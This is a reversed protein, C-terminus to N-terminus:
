RFELLMQCVTDIDEQLCIPGSPLWFSEESVKQSISFQSPDGGIWQRHLPQWFPRPFIHRSNLYQFLEKRRSTKADIWLPVSGQSIDFPIVQISSSEKLASEYRQYDAIAKQNHVPLKKFQAVGISAQLDTFKFNFGPYQHLEEQRSLRGHDKLRIIKESYDSNNTYILGGQGTSIVKSPALSICGFDFNTGLHHKGRKSGLAQACDEVIPIGYRKRIDLFAEINAPRGNIHVLIISKTKTSIAKEVLEPNMNFDDELIDVLVPTAGVMKVANATAIFTLDPVIVEDGHGVGLAWLSLALALTGNPVAHVHSVGLFTQLEGEFNRTVSGENLYNSDLVKCAEIKEEEGFAANWWGIEKSHNM